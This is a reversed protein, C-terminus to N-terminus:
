PGDSSDAVAQLRGTRIEAEDGRAVDGKQVGFENQVEHRADRLAVDDHRMPLLTKLWQMRHISPAHQRKELVLELAALESGDMEEVANACAPDIFVLDAAEIGVAQTKEVHVRRLIVLFCQRVPFLPSLSLLGGRDRIGLHRARDLEETNGAQECFGLLKRQRQWRSRSKGMHVRREAGCQRHQRSPDDTGVSATQKRAVRAVHVAQIENSSRCGCNVRSVPDEDERRVRSPSRTHTEREVEGHRDSRPCSSAARDKRAGGVRIGRRRRGPFWGARRAHGELRQATEGALGRMKVLAGSTPVPRVVVAFNATTVLDGSVPKM